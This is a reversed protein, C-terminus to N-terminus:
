DDDAGPAGPMPPPAVDGEAPEPPGSPPETPPVGPTAVPREHPRPALPDGHPPTASEEEPVPPERDDM